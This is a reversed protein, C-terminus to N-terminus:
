SLASVLKSYVGESEYGAVLGETWITMEYEIEDEDFEDYPWNNERFLAVLADRHKAYFDSFKCILCSWTPNYKVVEVNEALVKLFEYYSDTPAEETDYVFAVSMDVDNDCVDMDLYGDELQIAYESITM